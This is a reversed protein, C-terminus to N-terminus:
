SNTSVLVIAVCVVVGRTNDDISTIMNDKSYPEAEPSLLGAAFKTLADHLAVVYGATQTSDSEVYAAEMLLLGLLNTIAASDTLTSRASDVFFNTALSVLNRPSFGLTRDAMLSQKSSTLSLTSLSVLDTRSSLLMPRALPGSYVHCMLLKCVQILAASVSSLVQASPNEPRAMSPLILYEILVRIVLTAWTVLLASASQLLYAPPFYQTM